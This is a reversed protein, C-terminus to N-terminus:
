AALALDLKHADRADLLGKALMLMGNFVPAPANARMGLFMSARESPTLAPLMWKMTKQQQEPPITAVIAQEIAMLEGDSYHAWLVANNATEEMNMHVLNEGVFVSLMRHLHGLQVERAAAASQQVLDCMMELNGIDAVHHAHDGEATATSGPARAEMAVHVFESEHKLHGRLVGLLERIQALGEAVDAEDHADMRASRNLTDGMFARLAKHIPNYINLRSAHLDSM